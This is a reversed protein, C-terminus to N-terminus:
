FLLGVNAALGSLDIDTDQLEVGRYYLDGFISVGAELPIEIRGGAYWGWENDIDDDIEADLIYYSGGGVLSVHVAHASTLTIVLGADVPIVQLDGIGQVPSEEYYTGRIELPVSDFVLGAGGGMVEDGDDQSWYSGFAELGAAQTVSLGAALFVILAIFKQKM